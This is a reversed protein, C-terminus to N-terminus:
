LAMFRRTVFSWWGALACASPIDRQPIASPRAITLLEERVNRRRTFASAAPTNWQCTRCGRRDRKNSTSISLISNLRNSPPLRKSALARFFFGMFPIFVLHDSEKAKRNAKCLVHLMLWPVNTTELFLWMITSPLTRLVLKLVTAKM